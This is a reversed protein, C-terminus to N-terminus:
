NTNEKVKDDLEALLYKNKATNEKKMIAKLNEPTIANLRLNGYSEDGTISSMMQSTVWYCWNACAVQGLPTVCGTAISYCAAVVPPLIFAPCLVEMTGCGAACATTCQWLTVAQVNGLSGSILLCALVVQVTSTPVKTSMKIYQHLQLATTRM